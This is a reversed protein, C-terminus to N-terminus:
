LLIKKVIFYKLTLVVCDIDCKGDTLHDEVLHINLCAAYISQVTHRAVQGLTM